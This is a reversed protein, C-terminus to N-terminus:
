FYHADAFAGRWRKAEETEIPTTPQTVLQRLAGFRRNVVIAPLIFPFSGRFHAEARSLETRLATMTGAVSRGTRLPALLYAIANGLLMADSAVVHPPMPQGEGNAFHTLNFAARELCEAPSKDRTSAASVRM